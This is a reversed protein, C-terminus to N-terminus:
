QAVDKVCIQSGMASGCLPPSFQVLQSCLPQPLLSAGPDARWGTQTLDNLGDDGYRGLMVLYSM